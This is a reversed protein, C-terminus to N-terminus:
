AARHLAIRERMVGALFDLHGIKERRAACGTGAEVGATTARLQELRREFAPLASACQEGTQELVFDLQDSDLGKPARARARTRIEWGAWQREAQLAARAAFGAEEEAAVAAEAAAAAQEEAQALARESTRRRAEAARVRHEREAMEEADRRAVEALLAAARLRDTEAAARSERERRRAQQAACRAAAEAEVAMATRGAQEEAARMAAEVEAARARAEHEEAEGRREAEDREEDAQRRREGGLVEVKRRWEDRMSQRHHLAGREPGERAADPAGFCRTGGAATRPPDQGRSSITVPPEAKAEPVVAEGTPPFPNYACVRGAPRAPKPEWAVTEGKPVDPTPPHEARVTAAALASQM